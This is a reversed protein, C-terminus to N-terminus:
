PEEQSELMWLQQDELNYEYMRDTKEQYDYYDNIKQQNLVSVYPYTFLNVGLKDYGGESVAAHLNKIGMVLTLCLFFAMVGTGVYKRFPIGTGIHTKETVMMDESSRCCAVFGTVVACEVVKFIAAYRSAYYSNCCMLMYFCVGCSYVKFLLQIQRPVEERQRTFWGYFILLVVFSVVREGIAFLSMTGDWLFRWMHYSPILQLILKTVAPIQIFLGGAMAVGALTVMGWVPIYYAIVLVLWGYGVKHFSAAILVGIVYQIWKKELYFPLVLGLFICIAMAQRLGSVMYVFILVPYSLFLGTTQYPVYKKLFRGLLLMEIVAAAMTVTWFPAQFLKFFACFLRWGMEPYFGCIYGKSLDIVTPITRYIGEYTAYDTGQGFRLAVVATTVCWCVTFIKQQYKPKFWELVAGAALLLLVILYLNM